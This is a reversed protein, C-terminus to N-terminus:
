SVTFNSQMAKLMTMLHKLIQKHCNMISWLRYPIFKRLVLETLNLIPPPSNSQTVHSYSDNEDPIQRTNTVHVTLHRSSYDHSQNTHKNWLTGSRRRRTTRGSRSQGTGKRERVRGSGGEEDRGALLDPVYRWQWPTSSHEEQM